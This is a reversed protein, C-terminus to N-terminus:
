GEQRPATPEESKGGHGGEACSNAGSPHHSERGADPLPGPSRDPTTTSLRPLRSEVLGMRGRAASRMTVDKFHYVFADIAVYANMGGARMAQQYSNEGGYNPDAGGEGVFRQPVMRDRRLMFCFGNVYPVIKERFPADEYTQDWGRAFRTMIAISDFQAALQQRPQHGAQNTMPGAIGCDGNLEFCRVLRKLWDSQVFVVDNNTIVLYEYKTGALWYDLIENATAIWGLARDHRTVNVPQDIEFPFDSGDDVVLVDGPNHGQLLSVIALSTYEDHGRHTMAVMISPSSM